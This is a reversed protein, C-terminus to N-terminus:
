NVKFMEADLGQTMDGTLLHVVEERLRKQMEPECTDFGIAMGPPITFKGRTLKKTYIIKGCVTMSEKRGLPVDVEVRTGVPLPKHARLYIGGESLTVAFSKEFKGDVCFSVMKDLHARLHKRGKAQKVQCIQLANHLRQLDVPKTLYDCCGAVRCDDEYKLSGSVMFVSTQALQDDQRIKKLTDLGSQEPMMVDLTILRPSVVRALDLAEEGSRVPLVEFNMRNLLTSFYMLFTPSDDAVIATPQSRVEAEQYHKM